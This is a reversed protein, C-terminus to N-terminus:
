LKVAMGAAGSHQQQQQQWQERSELKVIAEPLLEFGSATPTIHHSM